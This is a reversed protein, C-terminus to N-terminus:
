PRGYASSNTDSIQKNKDRKDEKTYNQTKM